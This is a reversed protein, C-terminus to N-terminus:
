HQMKPTVNIQPVEFWPDGTVLCVLGNDCWVHVTGVTHTFNSIAYIHIYLM